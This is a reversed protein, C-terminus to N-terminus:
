PRAGIIARYASFLNELFDLEIQAQQRAQEEDRLNQLSQNYEADGQLLSILALDRTKDNTYKPKGEEMAYLVKERHGNKIKEVLLRKEEITRVLTVVLTQQGKIKDPSELLQIVIENEKETESEDYAERVMKQVQKPTYYNEPEEALAADIQKIVEVGGSNADGMSKLAIYDKAIELANRMMEAM